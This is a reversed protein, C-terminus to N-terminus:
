QRGWLPRPPWARWMLAKDVIYRVRREHMIWPFKDVATRTSAISLLAAIALRRDRATYSM